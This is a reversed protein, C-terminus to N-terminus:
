PLAITTGADVSLVSGTMSELGALFCVARAVEHTDITRDWMDETVEGLPASEYGGANTFLV